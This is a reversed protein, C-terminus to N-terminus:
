KLLQQHMKTIWSGSPLWVNQQAKPPGEATTTNGAAKTGTALIFFEFALSTVKDILIEKKMPPPM